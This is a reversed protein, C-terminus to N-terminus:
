EEDGMLDIAKSKQQKMLFDAILFDLEDDINVSRARSMIYPKITAGFFNKYKELTTTKFAYVVGNRHYIPENNQRLCDQNETMLKVLAGNEMRYMRSPHHDEVQYVSIVSDADPASLVEIAQDIDSAKRFPSTPQLWVVADYKKDFDQALKALLYEAVPPAPTKDQALEEPRLFPVWLNLDRGVKAFEETETSLMVDTLHKASLAARATYALLPEGALERINKKRVGKSGSRAPIVGLVKM